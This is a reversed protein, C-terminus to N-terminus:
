YFGSQIRLSASLAALQADTLRCWAIVAHGAHRIMTADIDASSVGSRVALELAERARVERDPVTSPVYQFAV